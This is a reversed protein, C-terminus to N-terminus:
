DITNRIQQKIEEEIKALQARSSLIMAIVASILVFSAITHFLTLQFSTGEQAPKHSKLPVRWIQILVGAILANMIGNMSQKLMMIFAALYNMHMVFHYFLIVLPMGPFLWYLTDLLVINESKRRYLLSIFVSEACFIIMAYPHNWLLYTYASSVFATGIGAFPGYYHIALMTFISGFIFDVNFFLTLKFYNGAVGLATLIIFM